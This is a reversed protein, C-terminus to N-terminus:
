ASATFILYITGGSLGVFWFVLERRIMRNVTARNM